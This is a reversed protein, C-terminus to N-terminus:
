LSVTGQIGNIRNLKQTKIPSCFAFLFRLFTLTKDEYLPCTEVTQEGRCESISTHNLAPFRVRCCTSVIARLLRPSGYFIPPVPGNGSPSSGIPSSFKLHLGDHRFSLHGNHIPAVRTRQHGDRPQIAFRRGSGLRGFGCLLRRCRLLGRLTEHAYGSRGAASM